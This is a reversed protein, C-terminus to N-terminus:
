VHDAGGEIARLKEVFVSSEVGEGASVDIAHVAFKGDEMQVTITGPTLTISNALATRTFGSRLPSDFHILQPKIDIVPSLVLAIMAINAKVIETLLIFLYGLIHFIKKIAKKEPSFSLGLFRYSVLSITVSILLGIVMVEVTFRGNLILWFAFFLIPM